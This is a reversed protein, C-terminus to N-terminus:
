KATKMLKYVRPLRAMKGMQNITSNTLLQLPFIALLDIFFWGKLYGCVISKRNAILIEMRNYYASMFSLVIDVLFIADTIGETISWFYTDDDFFAVNLPTLISSM